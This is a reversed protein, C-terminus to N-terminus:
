ILEALPNDSLPTDVDQQNQQRCHSGHLQRRSTRCTKQKKEATSLKFTVNLFMSFIYKM